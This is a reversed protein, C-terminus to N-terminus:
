ESLYEKLREMAIKIVEMSAAYSLRVYGEDYQGFASGPIFAVHKKKAFDYLFEFSNSNYEAPIKAFIYFAGDPKIIEFGLETMKEIIYDRRKLYEAKMLEADNKGKSLAEVAAWQSQTSASTVLYQHTKVLQDILYKEAFILGMRWGTMAHSKSLGNLVFTQDRLFTSISTHVHQSYNIESYVEDSLVFIEHKKIIEALTKLQAHTYTIGTPNSPYNLIIAKINETENLVQELKEPTLVFKDTTTDIEVLQGGALSVVPAYGPYAPAPILVKDGPEIISLLCTAIAETVGVTTLIETEADYHLNYKEAVFQSAAHRLEILGRMGTYHSEDADIADIAAKKIHEPTPFDPEGLTLKLVNPIKSIEQDFERIKSIEIKGLNTNFKNSLDM